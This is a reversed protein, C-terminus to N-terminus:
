TWGRASVRPGTVRRRRVTMHKGIYSEMGTHTALCAYQGADAIHSWENKDPMPKRQGDKRKGYRYGGNMARVFNPCRKKDILMAAGGDRASTLWGEVARLRADVDNTPAPYAAFGKRKLLDYETEEYLTSKNRGAPDGVIAIPKGLYRPNMLAPRLSRDVHVELGVDEAMVEELVLLRGKHDVQTILSCPDRGFDQGVLIIHGPVPELEDVVHFHLRFSEKFVATGSPDDGYQAHVYRKVWDPKNRALREYYGRGTALRVPHNTPLRLTTANQNLWELNEANPELGGPQKFIQWDKEPEEMFKHWDSGEEPMNTDAIIGSRTCGGMNASPYRGCRGALPAIISVDMEIAESMWAGTLQMSLLRRQDQQDELPIMLWESRIDGCEIYITGESVKYTSVHQLWSLVDKLVTDKLQKLTQRVIAYRTYRMGDPARVQQSAGKFQDFICATTKGSGVPGAILRGFSDSKMFAACTPPATYNVTTM